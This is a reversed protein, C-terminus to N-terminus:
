FVDYILNQIPDFHRLKIFGGFLSGETYIGKKVFKPSILWSNCNNLYSCSM